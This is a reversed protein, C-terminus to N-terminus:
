AGLNPIRVGARPVLPEPGASSVTCSLLWGAVGEMPVVGACVLLPPSRGSRISSFGISSAKPFSVFELVPLPFSLAPLLLPSVLTFSSPLSLRFGVVTALLALGGIICDFFDDECSGKVLPLVALSPDTLFMVTSVSVTLEIGCTARPPPAPSRLTRPRVSVLPLIRKFGLLSVIRGFFSLFFTTRFAGDKLEPM